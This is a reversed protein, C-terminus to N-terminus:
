VDNFGDHPRPRAAGADGGRRIQSVQTSANVSPFVARDRCAPWACQWGAVLPDPAVRHAANRAPWRSFVTRQIPMGTFNRAEIGEGAGVGWFLTVITTQTLRFGVASPRAAAVSMALPRISSIYPDDVGFVWGSTRQNEIFPTM